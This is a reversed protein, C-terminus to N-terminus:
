LGPYAFCKLLDIHFLIFLPFIPLLVARYNWLIFSFISLGILRRPFAFVLNYNFVMDYGQFQCFIFIFSFFKLNPFGPYFTIRVASSLASSMFISWSCYVNNSMIYDWPFKEYHLPRLGWFIAALILLFLMGLQKWKERSMLRIRQHYTTVHFRTWICICVNYITLYM